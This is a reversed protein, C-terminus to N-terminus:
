SDKDAPIGADLAPALARQLMTNMDDTSVHTYTATSSDCENGVQSLLDGTSGTSPSIHSM